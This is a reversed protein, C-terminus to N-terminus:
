ASFEHEQHLCKNINGKGGGKGRENAGSDFRENTNSSLEVTPTQNCGLYCSKNRIASRSTKGFFFIKSFFEFFQKKINGTPFVHKQTKRRTNEASLFQYFKLLLIRQMNLFFNELRSRRASKHQERSTTKATM